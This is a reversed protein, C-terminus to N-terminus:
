LKKEYCDVFNDNLKSQKFYTFNFKKWFSKGIHNKELVGLRVTEIGKSKLKQEFEGYAISGYGYGHYDHHIMFFGIWPTNDKPNNELFSLVGIYTDDAKIFYHESIEDLVDKQIEEDTRHPQGNEIQNYEKNSNVIEKVIYLNEETIPEFTIM